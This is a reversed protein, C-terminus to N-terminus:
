STLLRELVIAVGDDENTATVEDAVDMAEPVANAVAVGLGAWALLEVDNPADGFAVVEERDIGLRECLRAVGWAKSVSAAMV